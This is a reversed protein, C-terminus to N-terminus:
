RPPPLHIVASPNDPGLRVDAERSGYRFTLEVSAEHMRPLRIEGNADTWFLLDQVGDEVRVYDVPARSDVEVPAFPVPRGLADVLFARATWGAPETLAITRSEGDVLNLVTESWVFDPDRVEVSVCGPRLGEFVVCGYDDTTGRKRGAVVLAGAAPSGDRRLVHM